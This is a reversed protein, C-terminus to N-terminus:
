NVPLISGVVSVHPTSPRGTFTQLKLAHNTKKKKALLMLLQFAV